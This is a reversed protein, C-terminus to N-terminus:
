ETLVCYIHAGLFPPCERLHPRKLLPLVSLSAKLKKQVRVFFKIETELIGGVKQVM